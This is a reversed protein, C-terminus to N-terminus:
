TMMKSIPIFALVYMSSYQSMSLFLRQVHDLHYFFYIMTKALILNVVLPNLWSKKKKPPMSPTAENEDNINEDVDGVPTAPESAESLDEQTTAQDEPEVLGVHMAIMEVLSGLRMFKTAFALLLHKGCRPLLTWIFLLFLVILDLHQDTLDILEQNPQTKSVLFALELSSQSQKGSSAKENKKM